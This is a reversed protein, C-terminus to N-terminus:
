GLSLLMVERRCADYINQEFNFLFVVSAHLYGDISRDLKLTFSQHPRSGKHSKQYFGYRKIKFEIGVMMSLLLSGFGFGLFIVM